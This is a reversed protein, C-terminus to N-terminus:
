YGLGSVGDLLHAHTFSLAQIYTQVMTMRFWHFLASPLELSPMEAIVSDGRCQFCFNITKLRRRYRLFTKYGFLSPPCYLGLCM